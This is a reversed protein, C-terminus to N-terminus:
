ETKSRAYWTTTSENRFGVSDYLRSAAESECSVKVRTAGRAALLELGHTLLTRAIGLRQYSEETRVPEVLGVRTVPDFWYLSYGAVEGDATEMTLDLEPDYLSCQAMRAAICDGSRDIMHHPHGANEIRNRIVFGPRPQIIEPRSSADMWKTCDTDGAAFGAQLALEKRAQDDDRIPLTIEIAPLTEALELIRLWVESEVNPDAGPVIVPDIQWDGSAWSTILTAALPGDDDIWFTKPIDDSLRPARWWWQHDAAEWIGGVPAALRARQLLRTTLQLAELGSAEITRIDSM